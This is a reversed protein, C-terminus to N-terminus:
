RSIIRIFAAVIEPDTTSGEWSPRFDCLNPKILVFDDDTVDLGGALEIAAKLDTLINEVRKIAINEDM